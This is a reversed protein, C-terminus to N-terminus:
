SLGTSNVLANARDRATLRVHPKSAHAGRLEDPLSSAVSNTRAAFIPRRGSGGSFIIDAPQSGVRANAFCHSENTVCGSCGIVDSGHNGTDPLTYRRDTSSVPLVHHRRLRAGPARPRELGQSPRRGCTPLVSYSARARCPNRFGRRCPPRNAAAERIDQQIMVSDAIKTQRPIKRNPRQM